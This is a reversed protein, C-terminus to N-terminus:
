IRIFYQGFSKGEKEEVITKPLANIVEDSAPPPANTSPYQEM